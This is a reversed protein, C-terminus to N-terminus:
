GGILLDLKNNIASFGSQVTSQLDPLLTSMVEYGLYAGVGAVIINAVILILMLQNKQLFDRLADSLAKEDILAKIMEGSVSISNKISEYYPMRMGEVEFYIPEGKDNTQHYVLGLSTKVDDDDALKYPMGFFRGNQEFDERTIALTQKRGGITFEEEKKNLDVPLPLNFNNGKSRLFYLGVNNKSSMKKFMLSLGFLVWKFNMILIIILILVTMSLGLIALLIGDEM